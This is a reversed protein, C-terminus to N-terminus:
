AATTKLISLIDSKVNSLSRALWHQGVGSFVIVGYRHYNYQRGEGYEVKQAYEINESGVDVFVGETGFGVASTSISQDLAGTDIAVIRHMEKELLLGAKQMNLVLNNKFRYYQEELTM